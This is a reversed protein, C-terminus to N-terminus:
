TTLSRFWFRRSKLLYSRSIKQSLYPDSTNVKISKQKLAEDVSMLNFKRIYDKRETEAWEFWVEPPVALHASIKSLQYEDSLGTTLSAVPHGLWDSLLM